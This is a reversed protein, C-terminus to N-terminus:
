RARLLLGGVSSVFGALELSGIARCGTVADLGALVLTREATAAGASLVQLVMRQPGPLHEPIARDTASEFRLHEKLRSAISGAGTCVYAGSELLAHVGASLDWGIQGPVGFVSKGWEVARGATKVAASDKSGQVVVVAVSMGILIDNRRVLQNKHVPTGPPVESVLTGHAAIEAYLTRSGRPYCLDVGCGLVAVTTGGAALAGDHAAADIGRALGSVVCARSGAVDAALDTAVRIGYGNAARAGIIAVCPQMERLDRGAVWLRHPPHPIQGLLTPFEPDSRAVARINLGPARASGGKEFFGAPVTFRPRPSM